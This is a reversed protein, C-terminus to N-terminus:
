DCSASRAMLERAREKQDNSRWLRERREFADLEEQVARSRRERESLAENSHAIM